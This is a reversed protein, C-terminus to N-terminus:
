LNTFLIENHSNVNKCIINKERCMRLDILDLFHLGLNPGANAYQFFFFYPESVRHLQGIRIEVKSM